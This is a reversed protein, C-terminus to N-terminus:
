VHRRLLNTFDIQSALYTPNKSKWYSEIKRLSGDLCQILIKNETRYLKELKRIFKISLEKRGLYLVTNEVVLPSKHGLFSWLDLDSQIESLLEISKAIIQENPNDLLDILQKKLENSLPQTFKLYLELMLNYLEIINIETKLELEQKQEQAIELKHKKLWQYIIHGLSYFEENKEFFYINKLKKLYEFFDPSKNPTTKLCTKIDSLNRYFSRYPWEVELVPKLATFLFIRKELEIGKLKTQGFDKFEYFSNLIPSHDEILYLASVDRQTVWSLVRVTEILPAGFLSYSQVLEGFQFEGFSLAAKVTLKEGFATFWRSDDNTWKLIEDMCTLALAISKKSNFDAEKFYFLIEDGVYQYIFGDYKSIIEALTKFYLNVQTSLLNKDHSIFLRSFHNIDLRILTAFFTYPISPAEYLEKRLSSLLLQNLKLNDQELHTVEHVYSNYVQKFVEAEKSNVQIENKPEDDKNLNQVRQIIKLFDKFFYFFVLMSVLIFILVEEIFSTKFRLLVKKFYVDPAKILGLTLFEENNLQITKASIKDTLVTNGDIELFSLIKQDKNNIPYEYIKQGQYSLYLWDFMHQDIAKKLIEITEPTSKIQVMQKAFDSYALIQKERFLTYDQYYDLSINRM